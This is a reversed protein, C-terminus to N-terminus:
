PMPSLLSGSAVVEYQAPNDQVPGFGSSLRSRVAIHVDQDQEDTRHNQPLFQVLNDFREVRQLQFHITDKLCKGHVLCIIEPSLIGPIAIRLFLADLYSSPPEYATAEPQVITCFHRWVRRRLGPRPQRGCRSHPM